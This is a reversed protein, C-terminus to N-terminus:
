LYITVLMKPILPYTTRTSSTLVVKEGPTITYYVRSATLGANPPALVTVFIKSESTLRPELLTVPGSGEQNWNTPGDMKVQMMSPLAEVVGILDSANVAVSHALRDSREARSTSEQLTSLM